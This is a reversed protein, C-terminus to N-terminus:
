KSLYFVLSIQEAGMSKPILEKCLRIAESSKRKDEQDILSMCLKAGYDEIKLQRYVDEAMVFANLKLYIPGLVKLCAGWNARMKNVRELVDKAHVFNGRAFLHIGYAALGLLSKDNLEILINVYTDVDVEAFVPHQYNEVFGKALWELPYVDEPYKEIMRVATMVLREIEGLKYLLGLQSKFLEYFETTTVNNLSEEIARAFLGYWKEDNQGGRM